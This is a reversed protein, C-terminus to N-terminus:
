FIWWNSFIQTNDIYLNFDGVLVLFTMASSLKFKIGLVLVEVLSLHQIIVNGKVIAFVVGVPYLVSRKSRGNEGTEMLQEIFDNITEYKDFNVQVTSTKMAHSKNMQKEREASIRVNEQEIELAMQDVLCQVNLGNVGLNGLALIETM